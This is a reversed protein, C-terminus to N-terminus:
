GARRPLGARPRRRRGGGLLALRDGVLRGEQRRWSRETEAAGRAARGQFLRRGFPRRQPDM